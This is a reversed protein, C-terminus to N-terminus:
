YKKIINTLLLIKQLYNKIFKKYFNVFELFLQLQKLIVLIKWTIITEIKKPNIVIKGLIIIYKLFRIKKIHFNYKLLKLRFRKATLVKLIEM